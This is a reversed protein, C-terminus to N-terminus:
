RPVAERAALDLAIGESPIASFRVDAFAPAAAAISRWLLDPSAGAAAATWGIDRGLRGALDALLAPLARAEGLPNLARRFRQLRGEFNVFTGDLEAYTPIPLAVHANEVTATRRAAFVVLTEARALAARAADGGDGALDEEFVVLVRPPRALMEDLGGAIGLIELATTNAHRDAKRLIGDDVWPARLSGGAVRADPFLRAFQRAAFMAETPLDPSIVFGVDPVTAIPASPPEHPAAGADAGLVRAVEDLAHRAAVEGKGRVWGGLLRGENVAHYGLRGPDCMWWGNVAANHRPRLRQIVNQDHDIVINCGRACDPCVSERTKLFWVRRKFRFDKSTLAGVPCIDVVNGSYASELDRGPFTTIESHDGRNKIYLEERGGVERFFRVCRTCLVCRETDLVVLAGLDVVKRKEVKDGELRSEYKGHLMYYNQLYCEGAQDCIPCDIPHNVLLFELVARRVELVKPTDTRVKLGERAPTACAVQPKPMGEIEVLCMRCNGDVKLGPHYCFHPIAIGRGKCVEILNQGEPAEIEAGNLLMKITKAPAPTM